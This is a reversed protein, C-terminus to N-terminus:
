WLFNIYINKNSQIQSIVNKTNKKAYLSLYELNSNFIILNNFNNGLELYKLTKNLRIPQNFSNGIILHTLVLNDELYIPLNYSNGIMLYELELAENINIFKNFSNSMVLSKINKHLQFQKNFNSGVFSKKDSENHNKTQFFWYSMFIDNYDSFIINTYNSMLLKIKDDIEDNFYPKFIFIDGIIWYDSTKNIM